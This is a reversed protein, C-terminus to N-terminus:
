FDGDFAIRSENQLVNIAIDPRDQYFLHSGTTVISDFEAKTHRKWRTPSKILLQEDTSTSIDTTPTSRLTPLKTVSLGLAFDTVLNRRLVMDETAGALEPPLEGREAARELRYAAYKAPGGRFRTYLGGLQWERPCAAAVPVFRGASHGLRELATSGMFAVLGGYSHGCLVPRVAKIAVISRAIEDALAPMDVPAPENIRTARGPMRWVGFNFGKVLPILPNAAWAQDVGAGSFFFVSPHDARYAGAPWWWKDIAAPATTSDQRATM